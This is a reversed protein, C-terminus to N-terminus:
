TANTMALLFRRAAEATQTWTPHNEFRARAAVGMAALRERDDILQQIRRALAASDEPAVLFGTKGDTIIEHAAGATTAVAPLGYAMGELYAIGFGEYSSPIAIVHSRTLYLALDDGSLPGTLSVWKQLGLRRIQRLISRTYGPNASTSGAASLRWSGPKLSALADLLTHLGKRPILNGLFFLRLPGPERARTAIQAANLGAGPRDGAPYAILGPQSRGAVQEVVGQTTRSNFIFGDVSQLYLREIPRYLANQWVPRMESSRLHHVVSVIPYPRPTLRRNMLFLSPHCLEDQLLVDMSASRLRQLLGPAANHALHVGYMKYPLSFVEVQDGSARWHEVLIRDYLYGGSLTDLSGYIILGVRM